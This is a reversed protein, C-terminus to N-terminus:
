AEAQWSMLSGFLGLDSFAAVFGDSAQALSIRSGCAEVTKGASLLVQVCPTTMREVQGADIVVPKGRGVAKVLGDRLQAACRIDLVPGLSIRTDKKGNSVVVPETISPDKKAM